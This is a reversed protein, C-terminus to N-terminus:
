LTQTVSKVTIEVAARAWPFRQKIAAFDPGDKLFAVSGSILFGAGVGRHGEVERSGVTLLVSNDKEINFETANMGGAPYLLRGDGTVQVYSHWTNVLHLGGDGHTAIAVVGEHSLVELMKEPIRM